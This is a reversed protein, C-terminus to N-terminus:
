FLSRQSRKNAQLFVNHTMVPMCYVYCLMELVFKKACRRWAHTASPLTAYSAFYKGSSCCYVNMMRRANYLMSSCLSVKFVYYFLSLFFPSSAQSLFFFASCDWISKHLCCELRGCIFPVRPALGGDQFKFQWISLV